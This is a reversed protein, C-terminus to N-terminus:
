KVESQRVKSERGEKNRWGERGRRRRARRASAAAQMFCGGELRKGARESKNTWCRRESVSAQKKLLARV